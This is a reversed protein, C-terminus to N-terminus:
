VEEEETLFLKRLQKRGKARARAEIAKPQQYAAVKRARAVAMCEVTGFIVPGEYTKDMFRQAYAV